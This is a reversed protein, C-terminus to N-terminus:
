TKAEVLPGATTALGVQSAFNGLIWSTLDHREKSGMSEGNGRGGGGRGGSGDGDSELLGLGVGDLAPDSKERTGRLDKQVTLHGLRLADVPVFVWDSRLPPIMRYDNTEECAFVDRKGGAIQERRGGHKGTHAPYHLLRLTCLIYKDLAKQGYTFKVIWQMGNCVGGARSPRTCDDGRVRMGCGTCGCKAGGSEAFLSSPCLALVSVWIHGAPYADDGGRNTTRIPLLGLPSAISVALAFVLHRRLNHDRHTAHAPPTVFSSPETLSRNGSARHM